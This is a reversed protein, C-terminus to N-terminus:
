GMSGLKICFTHTLLICDIAKNIHREKQLMQKRLNKKKKQHMSSINWGKQLPIWLSISRDCHFQLKCHICVLVIVLFM